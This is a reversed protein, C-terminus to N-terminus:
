FSFFSGKLWQSTLTGLGIVLGYRLQPQEKPSSLASFTTGTLICTKLISTIHKLSTRLGWFSIMTAIAYLGGLLMAMIGATFVGEAGIISGIAGLLKVDGAGMGGTAYLILFLTLGVGLGKLSVLVGSLGDIFAHGFLGIAMASLTLWNPIKYSRLDTVAAMLVTTVMLLTLLTHEM